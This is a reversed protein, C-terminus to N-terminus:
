KWAWWTKERLPNGQRPLIRPSAGKPIRLGQWFEQADMLRLNHLKGSLHLRLDTDYTLLIDIEGAEAEAIIQCDDADSHFKLYFNKLGDVEQVDLDVIEDVLVMAIM